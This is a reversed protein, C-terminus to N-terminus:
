GHILIEKDKHDEFHIIQLAIALSEDDDVVLVTGGAAEIAARTAEQRPTLHKGKVKTEIAIFRGHVCCLYDLAPTGYGSQVPM